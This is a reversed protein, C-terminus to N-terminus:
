RVLIKASGLHGSFDLRKAPGFCKASGFGRVDGGVGLLGGMPLRAQDIKGKQRRLLAKKNDLTLDEKKDDGFCAFSAAFSVRPRGIQRM